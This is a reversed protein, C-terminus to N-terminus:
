VTNQDVNEWKEDPRLTLLTLSNLKAKGHYFEGNTPKGASSPNKVVLCALAAQNASFVRRDRVPLSSIRSCRPM